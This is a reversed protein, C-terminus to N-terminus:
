LALPRARFSRAGPRPLVIWALLAATAVAVVLSVLFPTGLEAFVSDRLHGWGSDLEDVSGVQFHDFFVSYFVGDLVLYLLFAFLLLLYAVRLLLVPPALPVGPALVASVAATELQGTLLRLICLAHAGAPVRPDLLYAFWGEIRLFTAFAVLVLFVLLAPALGGSGIR